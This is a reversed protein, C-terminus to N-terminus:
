VNADSERSGLFLSFIRNVNSIHVGNVIVAPERSSSLVRDVIWGAENLKRHLYTSRVSRDSYLTVKKEHMNQITNRLASKPM